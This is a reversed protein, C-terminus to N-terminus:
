WRCVKLHRVSYLQVMRCLGFGILCGLTNHIVDDVESFGRHLLFQMAEISSSICVGVLIVMWLKMKTFAAGLLLGIPLFVVINMVNDIILDNRGGQSLAMYSWFPTYNYSADESFGRSIVTSSYTLIIYEMLLLLAIKDWCRRFGYIAFLVVVGLCLLVVLGEYIETPTEFYFDIIFQRFLQKM